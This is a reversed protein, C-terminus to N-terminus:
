RLPTIYRETFYFFGLSVVAGLLAGLIVQVRTHEGSRVRAWSVAPILFLGAHLPEVFISVAAMYATAGAVHGSAKYVLNVAWVAAVVALTCVCVFLVPGRVGLLLAVLGGVAYVLGLALFGTRREERRSMNADRIKGRRVAVGLFALPLASQTTACTLFVPWRSSRATVSALVWFVAIAVM